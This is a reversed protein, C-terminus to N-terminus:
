DGVGSKDSLGRPPSRSKESSAMKVERGKVGISLRDSASLETDEQLLNTVRVLDASVSARCPASGGRPTVVCTCQPTPPHPFARAACPRRQKEGCIDAASLEMRGSQQKQVSSFGALSDSEVENYCCM